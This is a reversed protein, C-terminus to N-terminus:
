IDIVDGACMQVSLRCGPYCELYLKMVDCVLDWSIAGSCNLVAGTNYDYAIVTHRHKIAKM